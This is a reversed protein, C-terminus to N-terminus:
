RFCRAFSVAPRPTVTLATQKMAPGSRIWQGMFRLAVGDIRAIGALPHDAGTWHKTATSLRDATSWVSLYPDHTILPVAPPRLAPLQQAQASMALCFSALLILAKAM